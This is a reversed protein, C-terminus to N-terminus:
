WLKNYMIKDVEEKLIIKSIYNIEKQFTNCEVFEDKKYSEIINYKIQEPTPVKFTWITINFSKDKFQNFFASLLWVQETISKDENFVIWYIKDKLRDTIFEQM